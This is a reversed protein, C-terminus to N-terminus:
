NDSSPMKSLKKLSHETDWSQRALTMRRGDTGALRCSGLPGVTLMDGTCGHQYRQLGRRDPGQVGTHHYVPGPVSRSTMPCM